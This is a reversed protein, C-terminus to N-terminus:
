RNIRYSLTLFTGIISPILFNIGWIFSSLSIIMIKDSYFPALIILLLQGRIVLETISITPLISLCLFLIAVSLVLPFFEINMKLMYAVWVYQLMFIIYRFISLGLMTGKINTEIQMRNLFSMWGKWERKYFFLVIALIGIFPSILKVSILWRGDAWPYLSINLALALVGICITVILQAYSAWGMQAMGTIKNGADLFLTRGAYEGIRNPTFFAFAQGVFVSKIAKFISIPNTAAVVLKWKISEILFNSCMLLLLVVWEYVPASFLQARMMIGYQAWNENVLVKNYIAISCIVFLLLGISKKGISITADMASKFM